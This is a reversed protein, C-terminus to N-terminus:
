PRRKCRARSCSTITCRRTELIRGEPRAPLSPRECASCGPTLEGETRAKQMANGWWELDDLVIDLAADTAVDRPKDDEFATRVNPIVVTNRLPVSEAEIM